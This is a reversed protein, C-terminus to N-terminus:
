PMGFAVMKSDDLVIKHVRGVQPARATCISLPRETGVDLRVRFNERGLARSDVVVGYGAGGQGDVPELIIGEPYIAVLVQAGAPHGGQPRLAGLPTTICGNEVHGRIANIESFLGVILPHAPHHYIEDPTGSQLSRGEDMVVVKDAMVFADMADHTVLIISTEFSSQLDMILTRMSEHLQKDLNAFPEDLLMVRPEPALTRALAVRQIQGGSLESPFRGGLASMGVSELILGVRRARESSSLRHLGFGVNDWVSMHPFLAYDQFMMGIARKEPARAWGPGSIEQSQLAVTGHDPCELGAVIRLLTTKGCGSAGLLCVVEGAEMTLSVKDLAPQAQEPYSLSVGDIALLAM